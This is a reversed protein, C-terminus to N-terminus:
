RGIRLAYAPSAPLSAPLKIVTNAGDQTWTLAGDVGVLRIESAPPPSLQEITVTATAPRALLIAYVADGKRTFRVAEGTTTRGEARTWPRTGYIAEGNVKLWRGLVQLREMQLASISGDAAPGVNLLLNGNKSVIDVLLHVLKEPSLMHEPGEAQNYGFSYGLGRCSEWKKEVVTNFTTYEPTTFDAKADGRGFRNNIVGEPQRRYYDSVIGNFDGAKPYSIDNWLIDPQYRAILERWHADAVRVYEESQPVTRFVDGISQVPDPVFSWDMGGCYYAGMKMGQARVAKTFEGVYNRDTALHNVTLHPHTVSTPWLPYGDAHKTTFVVYRAGTERFLEAWAEPKWQRSRERFVPIFDEYKFDAGWTKVHHQWTPSDKIKMTNLYWEAYANNRFWVTYPVKGLEGSPPAWAPVSYLGWHVFIGLKADLYWSPVPRRGASEQAPLSPLAQAHSLAPALMLFATMTVQLLRCLRSSM